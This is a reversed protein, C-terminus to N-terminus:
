RYVTDNRDRSGRLAETPSAGVRGVIADRRTWDFVCRRDAIRWEGDRRELVDVYRLGM